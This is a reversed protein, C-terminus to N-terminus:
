FWLPIYACLQGRKEPMESTIVPMPFSDLDVRTEYYERVQEEFTKQQQQQQKQKQQQESNTTM